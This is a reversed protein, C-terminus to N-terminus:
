NVTEGRTVLQVIVPITIIAMLALQEMEVYLLVIMRQNSVIQDLGGVSVSASTDVAEQRRKACVMM